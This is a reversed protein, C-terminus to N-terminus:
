ESDTQFNTVGNVLSAPASGRLPKTVADEESWGMKLRSRIASTTLGTREAWEGICYSEGNATIFRNNRKNRAQMTRTAWICNDPSYGKENDIREISHEGSPRPGMDALFNTFGFEEDLWRDCVTIGRAGYNMYSSTEENYCRAKISFWTNHEVSGTGGHVYCHEAAKEKQLCGCSRANNHLLHYADVVKTNGCDCLCEWRPRNGSTPTSSKVVVLREFRDGPKIDRITRPLKQFLASATERALCGCSKTNGKFLTHIEVLVETRDECSCVCRVLRSGRSNKGDEKIVTLRGFVQGETVEYKRSAM